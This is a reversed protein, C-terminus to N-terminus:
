KLLAIELKRMFNRATRRNLGVGGEKFSLDLRKQFEKKDIKGELRLRIAEDLRRVQEELKLSGNWGELLFKRLSEVTKDIEEQPKEAFVKERLPESEALIREVKQAFNEATQRYLGVGGNEFPRDLIEKFESETIEGSIRKEIAIELRKIIPEDLSTLLYQALARPQLSVEPRFSTKEVTQIQEFPGIQKRKPNTVVRIIEGDKMHFVRHAYDLYFPDHTVLIITKGLSENIESLTDMVIKASASDLNGVPEDALLISPNYILARAIAVRQQQGGSLENPYRNALNEIGFKQLLSKAKEIDLGSVSGGFVLPLIVNNLVNLTPILNYAQFIMGVFLRRYIVMEKLSLELLNKDQVLIEGRTPTQLGALCYLLTSKGCGSPGFFIIYEGPYIKLNINKLAVTENNKGLNYIVSLNKVQIIPEM